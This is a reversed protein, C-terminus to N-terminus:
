GMVGFKAIGNHIAGPSLRVPDHLNGTEVCVMRNYEIDGFDEMRRSKEVWPNWIVVDNMGQKEIIIKRRKGNDELVLRDPASPYVRDTERDFLIRERKETEELGIGVFDFFKAGALGSVSTKKIDATSFYTHLGNKFEFEKKGTNTISFSIELEDPKLRFVLELRFKHPWIKITEETDKLDFAAESWGDDSLGVGLFTWEKIRAFGHKPLPGDGFQPFIVPIGGRIPRGPEHFSKKSLFLNQRGEADRWSEAHAGHLYVDVQAGSPHRLELYPLGNIGRKLESKDRGSM